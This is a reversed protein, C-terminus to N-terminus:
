HVKQCNHYMFSTVSVTLFLFKSNQTSSIEEDDPQWSLQSGEEKVICHLPLNNPPDEQGM